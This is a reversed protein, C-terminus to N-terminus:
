FGRLLCQAIFKLFGSHIQRQTRPQREKNEELYKGFVVSFPKTITPPKAETVNTRPEIQSSRATQRYEGDRRRIEERFLEVRGKLLEHCLRGFEPSGPQISLGHRTTLELAIDKVKWQQNMARAEDAEELLTGYVDKYDEAEDLSNTGGEALAQETRELESNIWQSVLANIQEQRMSAGYHQLHLFLCRGTSEFTAAKLKAKARDATRLSKWFEVRGGLLPLINRPVVLRIYYSKRAAHFWM